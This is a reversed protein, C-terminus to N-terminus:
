RRGLCTSCVDWFMRGLRCPLHGGTNIIAQGRALGQTSNLAIGRVREASLHSAVEVVVSGEDGTRLQDHLAPIHTPFQADVISGRVAVVTVVMAPDDSRLTQM